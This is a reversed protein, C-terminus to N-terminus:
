STLRKQRTDHHAVANSTSAEGDNVIIIEADDCYVSCGVVGVIFEIAFKKEWHVRLPVLRLASSSSLSVVVVEGWSVFRALVIWYGADNSSWVLLVTIGISSHFFTRSNRERHLDEGFTHRLCSKASLHLVRRQLAKSKSKWAAWHEVRRYTELHRVFLPQSNPSMHSHRHNNHNHSKETSHAM